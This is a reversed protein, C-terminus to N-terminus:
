FNKTSDIENKLHMFALFLADAQHVIPQAGAYGTSELIMKSYLDSLARLNRVSAIKRKSYPRQDYLNKDYRDLERSTPMRFVHTTVAGPIRLVIKLQNGQLVEQENELFTFKLEDILRGAEAADIGDPAAGICLSKLLGLEDDDADLVTSNSDGTATFEIITKRRSERELWEDDTPFRLTIPKIGDPGFTKLTIPRNADFLVPVEQVKEEM